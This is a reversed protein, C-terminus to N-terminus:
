AYPNKPNRALAVVDAIVPELLTRDFGLESLFDIASSEEIDDRALGRHPPLRRAQELTLEFDDKFARYFFTGSDCRLAPEHPDEKTMVLMTTGMDLRFLSLTQKLAVTIELLPEERAWVYALIVTALLEARVREITWEDKGRSSRVRNRYGAYATCVGVNVPDLIQIVIPHRQNM